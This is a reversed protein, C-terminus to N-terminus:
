GAGGEGNGSMICSLVVSEVYAQGHSAKAGKSQTAKRPQSQTIAMQKPLLMHLPLM